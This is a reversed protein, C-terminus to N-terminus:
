KTKGHDNLDSEIDENTGIAVDNSKNENTRNSDEVVIEAQGDAGVITAVNRRHFVNIVYHVWWRGTKQFMTYAIYLLISVALVILANLIFKVWTGYGILYNTLYYCGIFGIAFVAVSLIDFLIYRRKECHIAYKFLVIREVIFTVCFVSVITGLIVGILGIFKVLVISIIINLAAEILPFFKYKDYLGFAMNFLQPTRRIGGIYFQVALLLMFYESLVYDRGAWLAIFPNILVFLLIGCIGTLVYNVFNVKYFTGTKVTHDEAVNIEGIFAALANSVLNLFTNIIGIIMTYNSYYGVVAVSICTSIILNDTSSLVVGGIKHCLCAKTNTIIDRKIDRNLLIKESVDITHYHKKYYILCMVAGVANSIIIAVLYLYYNHWILLVVIQMGNLVIAKVFNIIAVVFGRKDAYIFTSYSAAFYTVVSSLLYLGFVIYLNGCNETKIIYPIFPLVVLGLVLVILGVILYIKRFYRMIAALTENDGDHLPKYLSVSFATAFGLEALSLMSLINSIVGNVGLYEEGLTRIFFTRTIFTLVYGMIQVAIDFFINRVAQRSRSAM